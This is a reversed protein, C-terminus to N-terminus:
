QRAASRLRQQAPQGAQAQLADVLWLEAAVWRGSFSMSDARHTSWRLMERWCLWSQQRCGSCGLSPMCRGLPWVATDLM